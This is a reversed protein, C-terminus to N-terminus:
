LWMKRYLLYYIGLFLTPLSFRGKELKEYNNGIYAKKLDDDTINTHSYDYEFQEKHKDDLNEGCNKCFKASEDLKSGCKPCYM